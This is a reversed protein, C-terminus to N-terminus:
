GWGRIRVLSPEYQEPFNSWEHQRCACRGITSLAGVVKGNSPHRLLVDPSGAHRVEPDEDGFVTFLDGVRAAERAAKGKRPRRTGNKFRWFPM